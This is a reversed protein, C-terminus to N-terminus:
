TIPKLSETCTHVKNPSKLSSLKFLENNENMTVTNVDSHFLFSGPNGCMWGNYSM